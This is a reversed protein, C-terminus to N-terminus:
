NSNFLTAYRGDQNMLTDHTGSEVIRKDAMVYIYDAHIITSLRHSIVLTSRNGLTKRLNKFLQIESVADLASTAEDLIVLKSNSYIARAIALKQWQGISIEHGEDFVRGLMTDYDLPFENVFGAAGSDIAARQIDKANIDNQIKGLSINESVTMNYKVFDQFVVSVQSRYDTINMDTINQSDFRITGTDPDYLRCLLKILTSKGAGNLGVLAIIKGSPLKMNIDILVPEVSHPYKFSVNELIIDKNENFDHDLVLINDVEIQAKLAFLEYVDAMYINNQYLKSIAGMLGQMVAFTQPFVIIFIAIDGVSTTGKLTGYVIYGMVSFYASTAFVTTVLEIATRKRDIVFQQKLLSTRIITYKNLLYAGLNFARIEKATVEGTMLYSLYSVERELSTNKRQWNYLKEAFKLRVILIPFVFLALMPLLKWDISILVYGMSALMAGNKAIDVMSTVVAYPRGNGAEKARKLIDLYAPNEFYSYDLGITHLHIEKDIHHNVRAGQLENFYSSIAKVCVFFVSALSTFLVYRMTLNVHLKADPKSLRDILQKISYMIGILCLNEVILFIISVILLVPSIKWVLRFTEKFKLNNYVKKLRTNFEHM